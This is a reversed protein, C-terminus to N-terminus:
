RALRALRGQRMEALGENLLIQQDELAVLELEVQVKGRALIPKGQSEGSARWICLEGPQLAL